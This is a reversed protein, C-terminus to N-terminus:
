EEYKFYDFLATYEQSPLQDGIFSLNELSCYVGFTNTTGYNLIQTQLLNNDVYWEVKYNQTAQDLTLKIKFTHWQNHKILFPTSIFPLNQSTCYVVLDDVQANLTNRVSIKGSGIEFDLEHEDDLYLFAGISNQDAIMRESTYISWTYTGLGFDEIKTKIKVRDLENARTSINFHNNDLSYNMPSGNQSADEWFTDLHLQEEFNEFFGNNIIPFNNRQSNKSCSTLTIILLLLLPSKM